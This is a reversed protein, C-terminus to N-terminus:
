SFVKWEIKKLNIESTMYHLMGVDSMFFFYCLFNHFSTRTVKETYIRIYEIFSFYDLIRKCWLDILNYLIPRVKVCAM